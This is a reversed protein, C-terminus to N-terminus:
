LNTNELAVFEQPKPMLVKIKDMDVKVQYPEVGSYAPPFRDDRTLAIGELYIPFKVRPGGQVLAFPHSNYNLRAFGSPEGGDEDGYMNLELIEIGYTENLYPILHDNEWAELKDAMEDLAKEYINPRNALDNLIKILSLGIVIIGIAALIFLLLFGHFQIGDEKGKTMLSNGTSFFYLGIGMGILSYVYKMNHKRKDKSTLPIIEVGFYEEPIILTSKPNSHNSIKM